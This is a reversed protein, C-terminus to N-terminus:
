LFLDRDLRLFDNALITMARQANQRRPISDASVTLGVAEYAEILDVAIPPM